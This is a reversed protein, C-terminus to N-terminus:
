GNAKSATRILSSISNVVIYHTDENKHDNSKNCTVKAIWQDIQNNKNSVIVTKCSDKDRNKNM